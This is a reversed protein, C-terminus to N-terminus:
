MYVYDIPLESALQYKDITMTHGAPTRQIFVVTIEKIYIQM